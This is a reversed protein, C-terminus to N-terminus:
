LEIVLGDRARETGAPVPLEVPRHTLLVRADALALAEEGSLHGRPLADDSGSRLTAECLFLDAGLALRRLEDCPGSDGSYALVRGSPDRVRFGYARLGYHNVPRATIELEGATFPVGAQYEAISFVSEFMNELGWVTGFTALEGRGQPPVWLHPRTAPGFGSQALWAWPVLDGWHDLHFHSIAIADVDTLESSRLRGLVGPGCDLLLRGNWRDEVLYGSHASGPNPWAPSSGIVTLKVGM